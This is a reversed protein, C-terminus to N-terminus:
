THAHTFPQTILQRARDLSGREGRRVEVAGELLGPEQSLVESALKLVAAHAAVAGASAPQPHLTTAAAAARPPMRESSQPQLHPPSPPSSSSPPNAPAGKAPHHLALVKSLFTLPDM